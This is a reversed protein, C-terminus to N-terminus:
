KTRKRLYIIDGEKPESGEIMLNIELLKNLKVAYKQSIEYMSEGYIVHHINKGTEAKNRKPQLYIISGPNLITELTIENYKALQWSLLNLEKNLEELNDGDETMIYKVRNNLRIQHTSKINITKDNTNTKVKKEKEKRKKKEKPKKKNADRKTILDLKNLDNEEIISILLQPYRSNTAYGAKKLGRAWGKYNTKDLKYLDSYREKQLFESHDRFSEKVTKYKRFCEDKADDDQHFKKGKWSNHCKIGFHNNARSALKSNGNDSELLAQAMTISAPINFREMESIALAKHKKIYEERTIQSFVNTSLSLIVTVVVFSIISKYFKNSKFINM